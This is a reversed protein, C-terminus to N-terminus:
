ANLISKLPTQIDFIKRSDMMKLIIFEYLDVKKEINIDAWYDEISITGTQQQHEGAYDAFDNCYDLRDTNQLWKEFMSRPVSITKEREDKVAIVEIEEDFLNFDEIEFLNTNKSM